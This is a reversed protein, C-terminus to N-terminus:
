AHVLQVYLLYLVYNQKTIRTVFVFTMVLHHSLNSKFLCTVCVTVNRSFILLLKVHM